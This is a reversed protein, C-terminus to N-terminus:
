RVRLALLKNSWFLFVRHVLPLCSVASMLLRLWVVKITDYEIKNNWTTQSWYNSAASSSQRHKAESLYLPLFLCCTKWKLDHLHKPWKQIDAVVKTITDSCHRIKESGLRLWYWRARNLTVTDNSWVCFKIVAASGGPNCEKAAHHPRSLCFLKLYQSVWNRWHRWRSDSKALLHNVGVVSREEFMGNRICVFVSVDATLVITVPLRSHCSLMPSRMSTPSSPPPCATHTEQLRLQPLESQGPRVTAGAPIQILNM